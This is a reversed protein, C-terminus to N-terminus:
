SETCMGKIRAVMQLGEQITIRFGDGAPPAAAARLLAKLHTEVHEHAGALCSYAGALLAHLIASRDPPVQLPLLADIAKNWERREILIRGLTLRLYDPVALGARSLADVGRTWTAEADQLLTAKTRVDAREAQRVLAYARNQYAHAELRRDEADPTDAQIRDLARRFLAESRAHQGRDSLASGLNYWAYACAREPRPSRECAFAVATLVALADELRGQRKLLWGQNSAAEVYRPTRVGNDDQATQDVAAAYARVAEDARGLILLTNGRYFHLSALIEDLARRDRADPSADGELADIATRFEQDAVTFDLETRATHYRRYGNLLRPLTDALRGVDGDLGNLDRRDLTGVVEAGFTKYLAKSEIFTLNVALRQAREPAQQLGGWVVVAARSEGGYTRAEDHGDDGSTGARVVSFGVRRPLGAVTEVGGDPLVREDQRFRKVLERQMRDDPDGALRAVLIGSAETFTHLGYVRGRAWNWGVGFALLVCGWAAARRYRLNARGRRTTVALRRGAMWLLWPMVLATGWLWAEEVNLLSRAVSVWAILGLVALTALVALDWRDVVPVQGPTRGTLEKIIRDIDAVAADSHVEPSHRESFGALAPPLEGASPVVAGEVRIFAITVGHELAADVEFRVANQPQALRAAMGPDFVLLLTDCGALAQRVSDKWSRGAEMADAGVDLFVNRTGLVQELGRFFNVAHAQGAERSYSIFVTRAKRRSRQLFM